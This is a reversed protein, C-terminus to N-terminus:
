HTLLVTASGLEFSEETEINQSIKQSTEESKKHEEEFNAHPEEEKVGSGFYKLISNLM